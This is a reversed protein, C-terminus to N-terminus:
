KQILKLINQLEKSIEKLEENQSNKLTDSIPKILKPNDKNKIILEKIKDVENNEVLENLAKRIEEDVFKIKNTISDEENHKVPIYVNNNTSDTQKETNELVHQDNKLNQTTQPEEVVSQINEKSIPSTLKEEEKLSRLFEEKDELEQILKKSFAEAEKYLPDKHFDKLPTKSTEIKLTETKQKDLSHISNITGLMQKKIKEANNKDAETMPESQKQKFIERDSLQRQNQMPNEIQQKQENVSEKEEPIPKKEIDQKISIDEKEINDIENDNYKNKEQLEKDLRGIFEYAKEKAELFRDLIEKAIHRGDFVEKIKQTASDIRVLAGNVMDMFSNNSFEGGGIYGESTRKRALKDNNKIQEKLIKDREVIDNNNQESDSM